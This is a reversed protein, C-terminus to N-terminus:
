KILVKERWAMRVDSRKMGGCKDLFYSPIWWTFIWTLVVWRQRGASPKADKMVPQAQDYERLADKEAKGDFM